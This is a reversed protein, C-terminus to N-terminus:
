YDAQVCDGLTTQKSFSSQWSGIATGSLPDSLCIYCVLIGQSERSGHSGVSFRGLLPLLVSYSTGSVLVRLDQRCSWRAVIIRTVNM